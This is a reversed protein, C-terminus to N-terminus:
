KDCSDAMDLRLKDLKAETAAAPIAEGVRGSNISAHIGCVLRRENRKRKKKKKRRKKKEEEKQKRRSLHHQRQQAVCVSVVRDRGTTPIRVDCPTSQWDRGPYPREPQFQKKKEKYKKM